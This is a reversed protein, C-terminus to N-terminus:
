WSDLFLNMEILFTLVKSGDPEENPEVLEDGTSM